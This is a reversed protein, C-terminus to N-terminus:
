TMSPFAYMPNMNDSLSPDIDYLLIARLKAAAQFSSLLRLIM